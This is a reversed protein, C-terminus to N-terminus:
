GWISGCILEKQIKQTMLTKMNGIETIASQVESSKILAKGNIIGGVILSIIILVISLEILTFGNNKNFVIM